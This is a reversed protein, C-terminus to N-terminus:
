VYASPNLIWDDDVAPTPECDNIRSLEDQDTCLSVADCLKWQGLIEQARPSRDIPWQRQECRLNKNIKLPRAQPTLCKQLIDKKDEFKQLGRRSGPARLQRRTLLLGRRCIVKVFHGTYPVDLDLTCM